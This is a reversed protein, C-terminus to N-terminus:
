ARTRRAERREERSKAKRRPAPRARLLGTVCCVFFRDRRAYRPPDAVRESFHGHRDVIWLEGRHWQTRDVFDALHDRVHVDVARRTALHACIESYVLRWPRGVASRLFKKLPALNENLYRTRGFRMPMQKALVDHDSRDRSGREFAHRRESFTRAWHGNARPREVIVQAMDERM